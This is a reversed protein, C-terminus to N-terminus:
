ESANTEDEKAFQEFKDMWADFRDANEGVALWAQFEMFRTLRDLKQSVYVIAGSLRAVEAGLRDMRDLADNHRRTRAICRNIVEGRRRPAGGTQEEIWKDSELDFGIERYVKNKKESM